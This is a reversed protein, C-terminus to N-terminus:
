RNKRSQNQIKIHYLTHNDPNGKFRIQQKQVTDTVSLIARKVSRNNFLAESIVIENPLATDKIDVVTNVTLGVYDLRNNLTVALMSGSHLGIKIELQEQIPKNQTHKMLYRLAKVAANFAKGPDIFAGMVAAGITKVSVGGCKEITDSLICTYEKLLSFTKRDDLSAYLKTSNTVEAFLITANKLPLVQDGILVESRMLERYLNNQIIEVGKIADPTDWTRYKGNQISKGMEAIYNLKFAPDLTKLRPHISFCVEINTDLTNNFVKNCVTCFNQSSAQQLSPAEYVVHGCTPCHYIWELIFVGDYVGQIFIDLIKERPIDFAKGIEYLPIHFLLRDSVNTLFAAIKDAEKQNMKCRLKMSM